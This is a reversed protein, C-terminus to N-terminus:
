GCLPDGTQNEDKGTVYILLFFYRIYHKRKNRASELLVALYVFGTNTRCFNALTTARRFKQNKQALRYRTNKRIIGIKLAWDM